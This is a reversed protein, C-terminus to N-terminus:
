EIRGPYNYGQPYRKSSKARASATIKVGRMILSPKIKRVLDGSHEKTNRAANRRAQAAIIEGVNKFKDRVEKRVEKTHTKLAKNLDKLGDVVIKAQFAM